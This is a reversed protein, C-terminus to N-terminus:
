GVHRLASTVELQASRYAPVAAALAGLLGGALFAAAAATTPVQLPLSEMNEEMYRSLPGQILPYSLLLGVAGGVLGIAVAETM